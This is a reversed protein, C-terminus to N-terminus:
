KCSSLMYLFFDNGSIYQWNTLVAKDTYRLGALLFKKAALKSSRGSRKPCSERSGRQITKRNLSARAQWKQEM